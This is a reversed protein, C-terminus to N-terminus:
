PSVLDAQLSERVAGEIPASARYNAHDIVLRATVNKRAFAAQAAEDLQFLVYQVASLKDEKSRGGEFVAPVRIDEGIALAVCRDIGILRVLEPRIRDQETIEILMTSSLEGPGPILENYVDMEERIHDLDAIHEARLMEQIQFLVTDFNEFVFTVHDGVPVRRVKKLEIIRKRFQDRIEEYRALGIIDDLSVRRM